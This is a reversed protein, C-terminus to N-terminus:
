PYWDEKADDTVLVVPRAEAKAYGLLQLWVVLDGYQDTDNQNKSGDMYGPPIKADYREKGKEYIEQYEEEEYPNGVRGDFLETLADFIPDGSMLNPKPKIKARLKKKTVRLDRM